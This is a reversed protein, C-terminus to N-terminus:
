SRYFAWSWKGPTTEDARGGRGFIEERKEAPVGSGDDDILLRIQLGGSIAESLAEASM